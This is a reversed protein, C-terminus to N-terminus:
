WGCTHDCCSRFGIRLVSAVERIREGPPPLCLDGQPSSRHARGSSASWSTALPREGLLPRASQRAKAGHVPKRHDLHKHSPVHLPPPDVAEEVSSAATDAADEHQTSFGPDSLGCEELM